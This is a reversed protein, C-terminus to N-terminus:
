QIIGRGINVYVLKYGAATRLFGLHDQWEGTATKSNIVVVKFPYRSTLAQGCNNFYSQWRDTNFTFPNLDESFTVGDLLGMDLQALKQQLLAFNDAAFQAGTKHIWGDPEKWYYVEEGTVAALREETLTDSLLVKLWTAFERDTNIFSYYQGDTGRFSERIADASPAASRQVSYFDLVDSYKFTDILVRNATDILMEQGGVWSFHEGGEWVKRYADKLAMIMGNNVSSMDSYGAPIAVKGNRDFTGTKDTKRDRFRIFGESECDPTNDFLYLSDRGVERGSRTLYYTKWGGPVNESAAIINEFRNAVTLDSLEPAIRVNGAADKFGVLSTDKNWFATWAGSEQAQLFPGSALLSCCLWLTRKMYVRKKFSLVRDTREQALGSLTLRGSKKNGKLVIM